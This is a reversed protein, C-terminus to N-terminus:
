GEKKECACAQHMARELTEIAGDPQTCYGVIIYALDRAVDRIQRNQPSCGPPTAFRVSVDHGTM